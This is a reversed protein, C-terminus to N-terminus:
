EDWRFADFLGVTLLLGGIAVLYEKELEVAM